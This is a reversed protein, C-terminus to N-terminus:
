CLDMNDFSNNKWYDHISIVQIIFLASCQLVSAKLSHHQLFSKLTGQVALYFWDIRFSILESSGNSPSISFSWHKPWGIHLALENSFVKISPLNIAPSPHCLIPHNFPMMSVISMFRLLSWLSLSPYTLRTHQLGHPQLSNSMVSCSFM